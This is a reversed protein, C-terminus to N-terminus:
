SAPISLSLRVYRSPEERNADNMESPIISTGNAGREFPKPLLGKFHSRLFGINYRESPLFFSSPFRYWEKGVCINVTILLLLGLSVVAILFFVGPGPVLSPAPYKGNKLESQPCILGIRPNTIIGRLSLQISESAFPLQCEPQRHAFSGPGPVGLLM